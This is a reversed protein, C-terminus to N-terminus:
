VTELLLLKTVDSEVIFKSYVGIPRDYASFAPTSNLKSFKSLILNVSKQTSASLAEYTM